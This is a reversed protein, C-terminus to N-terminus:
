GSGGPRQWWRFVSLPRCFLLMIGRRVHRSTRELDGRMMGTAVERVEQAVGGSWSSAHAREHNFFRQRQRLWQDVSPPYLESKNWWSRWRMIRRRAGPVDLMGSTPQM